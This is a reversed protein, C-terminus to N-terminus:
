VLYLQKAVRYATRTDSPTNLKYNISRVCFRVRHLSIGLILAIQRNTPKRETQRKNYEREGILNLIQQEVTTLSVETHKAM